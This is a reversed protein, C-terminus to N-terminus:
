ARGFLPRPPPQNAPPPNDAILRSVTVLRFGRQRLRTIIRPLAAVTDARDGGGDHMLIIAGPQAGSVATYVIQHVGPRTYDKTDASWLVMLMRHAHLTQLTAQDFSGYPPRALVPYPAGADHIAQAGQTIQAAQAIPSLLGLAPHTETHDGIESGAQVEAAVLQPYVRAWRGIVFFTAVAHMRRLVRLIQATYKSPGDDFTLAVERRRRGALRVYSTYRLVRDVAQADNGAQPRVVRLRRGSISRHAGGSVPRSVAAYRHLASSGGALGVAAIAVGGAALVVLAIAWRRRTRRRRWAARRASLEGPSLPSYRPRRADEHAEDSM